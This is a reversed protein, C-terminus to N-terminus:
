RFSLAHATINWPTLAKEGRARYKAELQLLM